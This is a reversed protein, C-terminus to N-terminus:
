KKLAEQFLRFQEKWNFEFLVVAMSATVAILEDKSLLNLDEVVEQTSTKKIPQGNADTPNFSM